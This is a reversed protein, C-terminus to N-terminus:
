AKFNTLFKINLKAYKKCLLKVDLKTKIIILKKDRFSDINLIQQIIFAAIIRGGRSIHKRLRKKITSLFSSRKCERIIATWNKKWKKANARDLRRVIRKGPDM